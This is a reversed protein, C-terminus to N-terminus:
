QEKLEKNVAPWKKHLHNKNISQNITPLSSTNDATGIHISSSSGQTECSSLAILHQKMGNDTIEYTKQKKWKGNETVCVYLWPAETWCQFM